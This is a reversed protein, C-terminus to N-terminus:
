SYYLSVHLLWTSLYQLFLLVAVAVAGSTELSHLIHNQLPSVGGVVLLEYYMSAFFTVLRSFTNLCSMLILM